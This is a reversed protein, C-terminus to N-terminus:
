LGDNRPANAVFCDLSEPDDRRKVGRSSTNSLKPYVENINGVQAFTEQDPLGDIKKLIEFSKLILFMRRM